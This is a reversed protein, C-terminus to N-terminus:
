FDDAKDLEFNGHDAQICLGIQLESSLQQTGTSLTTRGKDLEVASYDAQINLRSYRLLAEICLPTATCPIETNSTTLRKWTSCSSRAANSTLPSSKILKSGTFRESGCAADAATM